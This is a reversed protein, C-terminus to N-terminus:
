MPLMVAQLDLGLTQARRKLDVLQLLLDFKGRDNLDRHHMFGLDLQGERLDSRVLRLLQYFSQRCRLRCFSFNVVLDVTDERDVM